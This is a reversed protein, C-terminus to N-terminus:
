GSSYAGLVVTDQYCYTLLYFIFYNNVSSALKQLFIIENSAFVSFLRLNLQVSYKPTFNILGAFHIRQLLQNEDFSVLLNDKPTFTSNPRPTKQKEFCM